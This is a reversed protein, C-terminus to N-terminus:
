RDIEQFFVIKTDLFYKNNINIAFFVIDMFPTMNYKNQM